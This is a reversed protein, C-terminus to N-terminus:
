AAVQKALIGRLVKEPTIPLSDVRVGVADFIANAIAPIPSNATMEGVGKAGFPGDDSPGSWCRGSEFEPLDGPGPMLYENFDVPGHRPRSLLARDDRLARPEHGDLRRRRDAAGGNEPEARPRGRLREEAVAGRGRRDGHRGRGRRDHLCARLLHLPAHPRDGAGSLLAAGHVHRPRVRHPRAQFAGRAGGPVGADLAGARGEGPHQGQRRDRPRVADAELEEAAVELLVQRAEKAAMIIANGIRHTGRSAFTGMCHPGTDTDATDVIVTEVPVGITEACIQAMVTKLGQGLDVSSLTVVFNGTTTAHVLAQSPDGGLNMGTPYNVAAVGRGRAKAMSLGGARRPRAAHREEVLPWGALKAAAQMTEILAAGHTTEGHAKMDGDRYANLIRFELPDMGVLRALKDMQVELAFDGITVGFGRMASSPTRNTYVCHADVHVNPITYPGPM